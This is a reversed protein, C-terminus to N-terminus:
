AVGIWRLWLWVVAAACLPVGMRFPELLERHVPAGRAKFLLPRAALAATRWLTAGLRGRWALVGMACLATTVFGALQLELGLRPGAAAGIAALLKVDGGGVAGRRFLWWPVLACAVVGVVSEVASAAGQSAGRIAIASFLFPATLANPIRGSRADTVAAILTLCVISVPVAPHFDTM